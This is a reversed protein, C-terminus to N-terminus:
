AHARPQHRLEYREDGTPVHGQFGEARVVLAKPKRCGGLMGAVRTELEERTPANPMRAMFLNNEDRNTGSMLAVRGAVGLRVGEIPSIGAPFVPPAVVPSWGGKAMMAQRLTEIPVAQLAEANLEEYPIGLEKAFAVASAAASAPSNAASAAGSICIAGSFLGKSLPSGLLAGCAMGGASEGFITVRDADGGFASSCV